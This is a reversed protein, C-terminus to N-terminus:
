RDRIMPQKRELALATMAKMRDLTQVALLFTSERRSEVVRRFPWLGKTKTATFATNQAAHARLGTALDPWRLREVENLLKKLFGLSGVKANSGDRFRTWELDQTLPFEGPLWLDCALCTAAVALDLDDRKAAVHPDRLLPQPVPSPMTKAHEYFLALTVAAIGDASLRKVAYPSDLDEQWSTIPGRLGSDDRQAEAIAQDRWEVAQQLAEERGLPQWGDMHWVQVLDPAGAKALLQQNETQWDGALYRSISGVYLDVAM